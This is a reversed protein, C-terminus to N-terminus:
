CNKYLLDQHSQLKHFPIQLWKLWQKEIPLKNDESQKSIKKTKTKLLKIKKKQLEKKKKFQLIGLHCLPLSDVWQHPLSLFCPNSGQTLFIGQVLAHYGMGTDKGPFDWPCPLWASWLGHARLSDSMVSHSLVCVCRQNIINHGDRSYLMTVWNYVYICRHIYLIYMFTYTYVPSPLPLGRWYEQRSFGMSLPAQHAATEPTVYLRIIYSIMCQDRSMWASSVHSIM